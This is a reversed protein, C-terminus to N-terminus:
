ASPSCRIQLDSPDVLFAGVEGPVPYLGTWGNESFNGSTFTIVSTQPDYTYAGPSGSFPKYNGGPQLEVWGFYDVGGQYCEYHGLAPGAATAPSASVGAQSPVSAPVVTTTPGADPANGGGCAVLTAASAVAMAMRIHM